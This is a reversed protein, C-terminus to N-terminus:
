EWGIDDKHKSASLIMLVDFCFTQFDYRAGWGESDGGLPSGLRVTIKQTRTTIKSENKLRSVGRKRFNGRTGLEPNRIFESIDTPHKEHPFGVYGKGCDVIKHLFLRILIHILNSEKFDKVFM